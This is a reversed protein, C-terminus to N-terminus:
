EAELVLVSGQEDILKLASGVREAKYTLMRGSPQEVTLILEYTTPDVDVHTQVRAGKWEATMNTSFQYRAGSADRYAGYLVAANLIRELLFRAEQRESPLRGLVVPIGSLDGIDYLAIFSASRDDLAVSWEPAQDSGIVWRLEDGHLRTRRLVREEIAGFGFGVSITGEENTSDIEVWFPHGQPVEKMALPVSATQKLTQIFGAHIWAGSLEGYTQASAMLASGCLLASVLLRQLIPTTM